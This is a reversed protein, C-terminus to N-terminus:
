AIRCGAFHCISKAAQKEYNLLPLGASERFIDRNLGDMRFYLTNEAVMGLMVGECFVGTKGFMRRLTLPGLPALQDRLFDSFDASGVM